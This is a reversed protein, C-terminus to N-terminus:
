AGEGDLFRGPSLRGDPDLTARIGRMLALGPIDDGWPDVRGDLDTPVADFIAFGGHQRALSRVRAFWAADAGPEGSRQRRVHVRATAAHALLRVPRAADGTGELETLLGALATPLVSVAAGLTDPRRAGLAPGDRLAAQLVEAEEGEFSEIGTDPLIQRVLDAQAMVDEPAGALGLVVHASSLPEALPLQAAAPANVLELFRPPLPSNRLREALLAAAETSPAPLRLVQQRRPLPLVRFSAEVVVGLTGFSGTFLKMLDYGAVNKVVRGGARILRGDALVVSIGLLHDRVRGHALRSPGSANAAILGGITTLDPLPPDIPLWQGAKALEEQLVVLPCGSEVTVTLDGAEHAVIRDLNRSGLTVDHRSPTRGLGMRLGMGTPLVALGLRATEQLVQQVQEVSNPLAVCDPLTGRVAFRSRQREPALPLDPLRETLAATPTTEPPIM